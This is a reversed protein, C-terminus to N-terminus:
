RVGWEKLQKQMLVAKQEVSITYQHWFKCSAGFSQCIEPILMHKLGYRAINRSVLYDDILHEPKVVTGLEEVTPHINAVAEEFTIDDLPHYYDLCWDSFIACWNGKGIWRRDRLFYKDPTFRVPVFDSGYSVTVDKGIVSTVDFFDPHLLTDADFFLVWDSKREKEVDWIQFKEYVPPMEPHLRKDIVRFDAGIKDAFAKLLPFTLATIEPAYNDVCLTYLTKKM